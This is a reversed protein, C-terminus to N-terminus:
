LLQKCIKGRCIKPRQLGRPTGAQAIDTTPRRMHTDVKAVTGGKWGGLTVARFLAETEPGFEDWM